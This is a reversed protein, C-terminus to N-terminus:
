SPGGIRGKSYEVICARGAVGTKHGLMVAAGDRLALRPLPMQTAASLRVIQPVTFQVLAASCLTSSVATDFLRRTLPRDRM